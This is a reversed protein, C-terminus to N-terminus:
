PDYTVKDDLISNTNPITPIYVDDSTGDFASKRIQNTQYLKGLRTLLDLKPSRITIV